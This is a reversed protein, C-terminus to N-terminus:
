KNVGNIVKVVGIVRSYILGRQIDRNDKFIKYM